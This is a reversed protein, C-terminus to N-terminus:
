ILFRSILIIFPKLVTRIHLRLVYNLLQLPAIELCLKSISLPFFLSVCM